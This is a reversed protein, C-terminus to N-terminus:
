KKEQPQIIATVRGSNEAECKEVKGRNENAYIVVKCGKITNKGQQLVPEGTMVFQASDHYYVAEGGTATMDKQSIMVNGKLEIKDLDGAAEVEQKGIKEKKDGSKKYYVSLRDAKIKIEGKTVVANGSFVIMKKEQYAEMKDSVIEIPEGKQLMSKQDFGMQARATAAVALLIFLVVLYINKVNM